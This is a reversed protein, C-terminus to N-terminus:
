SAEGLVRAATENPSLVYAIQDDGLVTTGKFGKMQGVVGDFPRVVAELQDHIQEVVLGVVASRHKLFIVHGKPPAPWSECRGSEIHDTRFLKATTEDFQSTWMDGIQTTILSEIPSIRAIGTMPISIFIDGAQAVITEEVMVTKPVPIELIFRTGRGPESEIRIRGHLGTIATKVVDMGVGRGSVASVKEATSFGPLFILGFIEADPMEGVQSKSVLGRDIAKQLIKDKPLGAGDDEIIVEVLSQTERASIRLSATKPKGSKLRVADKEIGHDLSNRVMHTLCSSLVKAINKDVSTDFGVTEFNVPKGLEQSLQRVLRPLKSLARTLTVRRVAMMQAQVQDIVKNMTFAFDGARKSVRQDGAKSDLQRLILQFGNKLVVLEGTLKMLVDLKENTVFVGEDEFGSEEAKNGGSPKRQGTDASGQASVPGKAAAGGGKLDVAKLGSVLREVDARFAETPQFQKITQVIQRTVDACELFLNVVDSSVVVPPSKLLGLTSEFQHSLHALETGGIIAGAAGKITHIARFLTDVVAAEPQDGELRMIQADVDVLLDNAEDCFLLTIEKLESEEIPLSDKSM